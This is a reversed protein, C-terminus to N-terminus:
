FGEKFVHVSELQSVLWWLSLYHNIMLYLGEERLYLSSKQWTEQQSIRWAPTSKISEEKPTYHILRACRNWVVMGASILFHRQKLPILVFCHWNSFHQKAGQNYFSEQPQSSKLCSGKTPIFLHFLPLFNSLSSGCFRGGRERMSWYDRIKCALGWVETAQQHEWRHYSFKKKLAM